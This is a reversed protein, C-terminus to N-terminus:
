REHFGCAVAFLLLYTSHNSLLHIHFINVSFIHGCQLVCHTRYWKVLLLVANECQLNMRNWVASYVINFFHHLLVKIQKSSCKKEVRYSFYHIISSKALYAHIVFRTLTPSISVPLSMEIHFFHYKSISHGICLHM